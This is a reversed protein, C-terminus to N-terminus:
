NRKATGVRDWWKCGQFLTEMGSRIKFPLEDAQLIILLFGFLDDPDNSINLSSGKKSNRV